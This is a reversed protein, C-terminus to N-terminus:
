LQKLLSERLVGLFQESGRSQYRQLHRVIAVEREPERGSLRKYVLQSSDDKARCVKPLISIGLGMAVLAKVTKIQACRHGIRPEFDHDGCFRQIQMAVSSSEGLLIFTQDALDSATVTAVSALAHDKGVVLLLPETFIPEISLRPEKIPLSVLGLDLEGELVARVLQGRFNERTHIILHPFRQRCEDILQPFLYPVVTPIGGIFIHRGLDPSDSLEKAADDLELLVRRARALLAIGAETPVARRGLRHFLKHGLEKELNIIQQSLSPQTVNVREAARTFNGTEAVAILYRLQHLEM